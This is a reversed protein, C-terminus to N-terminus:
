EVEREDIDWTPIGDDWIAQYCPMYQREWDFMADICYNLAKRMFIEKNRVNEIEECFPCKRCRELHPKMDDWYQKQSAIYANACEPMSFVKDVVRLYDDYSGTSKMVLFVKM